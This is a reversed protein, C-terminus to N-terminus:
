QGLLRPSSVLNTDEFGQSHRSVWCHLYLFLAGIVSFRLLKGLRPSYARGAMEAMLPYPDSLQTAQGHETQFEPNDEALIEWCVPPSEIM